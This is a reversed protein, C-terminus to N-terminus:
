VWGWLPFHVCPWCCRSVCRPLLLLLLLLLTKWPTTCTFITTTTTTTTRFSTASSSTATTTVSGCKCGFPSPRFHGQWVQTETALHTQPCHKTNTPKPVTFLPSLKNFTPTPVHHLQPRHKNLTPTPVTNTSLPHPVHHFHPFHMSLSHPSTISTPVTNTSLPNPSLARQSHTHPCSPLPSQKDSNPKPVHHFHPRNIM